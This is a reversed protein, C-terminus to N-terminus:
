PNQNLIFLFRILGRLHKAEMFSAQYGRPKRKKSTLILLNEKISIIRVKKQTGMIEWGPSLATISAARRSTLSGSRM